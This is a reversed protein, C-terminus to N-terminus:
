GYEANFGGTIVQVEQISSLPVKFYPLNSIEDVLMLGDVIFAAERYASGRISPRATGEIGVQATVVDEITKFATDEIREPDVVSQTNAVDLPIIAREAVVTVEAGAELVTADLNFEINTTRDVTVPVDTKRTTEYGMMSCSLTYRGPRVNIIFYYGELDTAAGMQTGTIIVNAGPLPEGTEADVVRGSIKGTTASFVVGFSLCLTLALNMAMILKFRMDRRRKVLM